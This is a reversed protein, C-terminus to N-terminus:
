QSTTGSIMWQIVLYLQPGILLLYFSGIFIGTQKTTAALDLIPIISAKPPQTMNLKCLVMNYDSDALPELIDINSIIDAYIYAIIVPRCLRCPQQVKFM